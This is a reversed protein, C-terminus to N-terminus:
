LVCLALHYQAMSSFGTHVVEDNMSFMFVKAFYPLLSERLDVQEMCSVHGLRSQPSAWRQSQLSPAGLVLTSNKCLSSCLNSLFNNYNNIDIHEIVDLCVAGDYQGELPGDDIFDHVVFRIPWKDSQRSLADQIFDSDVDACTLAEVEQLLVRSAFGDGCGVELVNKCGALMKSAFKYRSFTFALRKPDDFYAWAVGSGLVNEARGKRRVEEVVSSYHSEKNFRSDM